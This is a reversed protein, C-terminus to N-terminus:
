STLKSLEGLLADNHLAMNPDDYVHRVVGASDIVVYSHGPLQGYHMSSQTKLMGYTGSVKGNLDHLVTAKGLEPMKEVASQWANADDVVVSFVAAGKDQFRQDDGLSAIQNWCAPYCMIGENFFLVVDKGRLSALSYTKGSRDALTFDPAPKGILDNLNSVPGTTATHHGAMSDEQASGTNAPAASSAPKKSLGLYVLGGTVLITTCIAITATINSNQHHRKM